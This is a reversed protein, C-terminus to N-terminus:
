RGGLGSGVRAVGSVQVWRLSGEAKHGMATALDYNTSITAVSTKRVLM